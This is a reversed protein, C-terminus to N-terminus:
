GPVGAGRQDGELIYVINNSPLRVVVYLTTRHEGPVRMRGTVRQTSVRGTSQGGIYLTYRDVYVYM